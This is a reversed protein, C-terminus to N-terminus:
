SEPLVEPFRACVQSITRSLASGVPVDPQSISVWRRLEAGSEAARLPAASFELKWVRTIREIKHRTVVHKTLVTGLLRAGTLPSDSPDKEPLDWLGARWEGAQRKRVLVRAERDILCDVEEKVSLWKKPPKRPPYAEQEGLMHARCRESLPCLLCAPKKPTCITAGLEMLAQNLTRPAVGLRAAREVFLASLRWLRSKFAADGRQRGVCRLRSLVREVNGDLIPRPQNLAISLVAGATYRGVGPLALWGDLTEPFAGAKEIMQAASRLNRARSYYGLGAWLSLVEEESARALKGVDPFAAVFREFFPVVAVVQTQQLMIESIWVRYLSPDNRWPLIRKQREFWEGLRILANSSPPKSM